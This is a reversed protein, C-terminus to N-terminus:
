RIKRIPKFHTTTWTFEILNGWSGVFALRLRSQSANCQKFVKRIVVEHSDISVVQESIKIWAPKENTHSQPKTHM